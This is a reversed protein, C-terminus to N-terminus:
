YEDFMHQVRDVEDTVTLALMALIRAKQPTLNDAVVLGRDAFTTRRLVRGSGARSSLVVLVGRRRAELLADMEGSTTVGPALSAAVIARAGSAVFAAIAAGDAGAYSYSIDVRPLDTAGRVDFETDPAHRRTPRRYLAVRGDPDAYGLMGVDPSRFTELRLTSTKTVERAAQIEDNLLALVGMGRAEAAAAVRVAGLLNMPADTSLGSFPRQAGVVVIPVDVKATLNLFYATEELTATGHTIVIGDIPAERTVVEHVVRNLELWDRPGIAPSGVARHRVPVVDAVTALEPVEAVLEDAELKKGHDMYQWVDLSDRGVSSITGGTGIVAVRRRRQASM